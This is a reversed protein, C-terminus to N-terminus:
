APETTYYHWVFSGDMFTGVYHEDDAVAHGTGHVTVVCSLVPLATNVEAWVCVTGYQPAIFQPRKLGPAVIREPVGTMPFKWVARM